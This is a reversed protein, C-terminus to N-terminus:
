EYSLKGDAALDRRKRQHLHWADTMATVDEGVKVEIFGGEVKASYDM